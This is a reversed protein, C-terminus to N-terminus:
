PETPGGSETLGILTARGDGVPGVRTAAGTALDITYLAGGTVAFAHEGDPRTVIEFGTEPAFDVGLPGITSLTGANPPEQRVLVDLRADIDYMATTSAGAVNNTYATAAIAPRTGANPDGSTYALGADVASAGLTVHVRVNQGDHSLLRLRDLHPLFDVGSRQDGDFPATLTSVLTAAGTTTDVRYIESTDSVAYVLGDAPRRDLGLLRGSAGSVAVSTASSPADSSFRLLTGDATLAVLSTPEAAAPAAVFLVTVLVSLM